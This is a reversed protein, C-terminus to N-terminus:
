TLTSATRAWRRRRCRRCCCSRAAGSTPLLTFYPGAPERVARYGLVVTWFDAARRLDACDLVVVLEGHPYPQVRGPNWRRGTRHHRPRCAPRSRPPLTDPRVTDVTRRRGLGGTSCSTDGHGPGARYRHGHERDGLLWGGPGVRRGVRDDRQRDGRGARRRGVQARSSWGPPWRSAPAPFTRRPRPAGPGPIPPGAPGRRRGPPGPRGRAPPSLGGATHVVTVEGVVGRCRRDHDGSGRDVGSVTSRTAVGVVDM